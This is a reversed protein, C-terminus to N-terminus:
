PDRRVRHRSRLTRRGRARRRGAGRLRRQQARARYRHRARRPDGGRLLRAGHVPEASVRRVVLTDAAAVATTGTACSPCAACSWPWPTSGNTAAVSREFDNVWTNGCTAPIGSPIPSSGPRGLINTSVNTLGWHQAMRIDPEMVDFVYRANEQLRAISENVRFTTRSQMFVTLAGIMLFSGIGLAVMLEILTMGGNRSRSFATIDQTSM